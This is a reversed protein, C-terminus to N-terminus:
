TTLFMVISFVKHSLSYEAFFKLHFKLFTLEFSFHPSYYFLVESESAARNILPNNSLQRCLVMGSLWFTDFRHHIPSPPPPHPTVNGAPETSHSDVFITKSFFFFYFFLFDISYLMVHHFNSSCVFLASFSFANYWLTRFSLPPPPPHLTGLILSLLILACLQM